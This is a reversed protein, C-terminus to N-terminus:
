FKLNLEGCYSSKSSIESRVPDANANLLNIFEEIPDFTEETVTKLQTYITVLKTYIITYNGSATTLKDEFFPIRETSLTNWSAFKLIRKESISINTQIKLLHEHIQFCNLPTFDPNAEVEAQFLLIARLENAVNRTTFFAEDTEAKLVPDETNDPYNRLRRAENQTSSLININTQIDCHGFQVLQM